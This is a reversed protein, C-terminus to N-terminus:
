IGGVMVEKILLHPGGSAVPVLQGGKGCVGPEKDMVLDQGIMEINALTVFLNGSFQVDRVLRKVRGNKILYTFQPVFTFMERDTQGGLFGQSYLGEKVSNFMEERTRKGPEIYTNSMRVLPQDRYTAARANGTVSENMKGATERSHLRGALRGGRILYTRRAPVGEEDYRYSGRLGERTPDDVVNLEDVGVKRGLWMMEKLVPNEYLHDAESLHGFAEHIFTGAMEPDLIISYQGAEVPEAELLEVAKEARSPIEDPLRRVVGYDVRDAVAFTARQLNDEKKVVVAGGFLIDSSEQFLRTGESNAFSVRSLRDWYRIKVDSVLESTGWALQHCDKALTVKEELSVERPDSKFDVEVKGEVVAVDALITKDARGVLRAQGVAEEVRRELNDWDNFSVFVWGGRYAARVCGGRRRPQSVSEIGDGRFRVSTGEVEEGRIELYDVRSRYREVLGSIRDLM